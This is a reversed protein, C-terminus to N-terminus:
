KMEAEYKASHKTVIVKHNEIKLKIWKCASILMGQHVCEHQKGFVEKKVYSTYKYNAASLKKVNFKDKTFFSDM